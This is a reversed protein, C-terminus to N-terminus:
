NNQLTFENKGLMMLNSIYYPVPPNLIRREILKTLCTAINRSRFEWTVHINENPLKITVDKQSLSIGPRNIVLVELTPPNDGFCKEAYRRRQKQQTFSIGTEKRDPAGDKFVLNKNINKYNITGEKKRWCLESLSKIDKGMLKFRKSGEFGLSKAIGDLINFSVNKNTSFFYKQGIFLAFFHPVETRVKNRKDRKKILSVYIIGHHTNIKVNIKMHMSDFYGQMNKQFEKNTLYSASKNSGILIYGYWMRRNSHWSIDILQLTLFRDRLIKHGLKEETIAIKILQAVNSSSFKENYKVLNSRINAWSTEPFIPMVSLELDEFKFRKIINIIKQQVSELTAS